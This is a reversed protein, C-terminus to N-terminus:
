SLDTLSIPRASPQGSRCMPCSTHKIQSCSRCIQHGCAFPFCTEVNTFEEMCIPCEADTVYCQLRSNLVHPSKLDYVYSTMDGVFVVVHLMAAGLVYHTGYKQNECLIIFTGLYKAIAEINTTTTIIYHMTKPKAEARNMIVGVLEKVGKANDNHRDFLMSVNKPVYGNSRAFHDIKAGADFNPFWMHNPLPAVREVLDWIGEGDNLTMEVVRAKIPRSRRPM